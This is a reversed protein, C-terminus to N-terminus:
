GNRSNLTIIPIIMEEMSVGGHQFTDRYYKVYYNYNNPYVFFHDKLAFVYSSTVNLKPLHLKGPDRVTFIDKNDYSLNKGQKYRLNTNTNRDGIIKFPKKVRITGHDTTIILKAGHNSIRELTDLLPSHRFWSQTLSRYASEDPALEKIMAMDTRAHSLMDVFNYVIVNLDNKLLSNVQNYLNKGQNVHIIKHYSWRIDMGLRQLHAELFKDEYQNKGEDIDEGVWLDPHQKEMEAPLLGSFIANRSYATTTPLISYYNSEEILNFLELITSELIKWQDYRLNDIVLLFVPQGKGVLPLVKSELLQHSLLPGEVSGNLWDEYNDIIFDAFFTNAESKQSDLIEAMGADDNTSFELEWRILKKYIDAWEKYDLDDSITMSIQRFEKQYDTTARESVLKKNELIKKVSLLIQNPNLPKILYDTIKSGIAEEMIEEEENKTIMVVPLNPFKTKIKTLVELGSMGPMNEDLFVVDFYENNCSDLADFGSNVPTVDYGKKELFLIHPKLLDIEDDAWLIKYNQM